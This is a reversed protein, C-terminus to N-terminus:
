RPKEEYRSWFQGARAAAADAEAPDDTRRVVTWWVTMTFDSRSHYLSVDFTLGNTRFMRKRAPKSIM